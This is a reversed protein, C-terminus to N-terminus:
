KYELKNVYKKLLINHCNNRIEQSIFQVTIPSNNIYFIIENHGREEFGNCLHMPIVTNEILEFVAM